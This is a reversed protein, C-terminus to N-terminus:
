YRTQYPNNPDIQEIKVNNKQKLTEYLAANTLNRYPGVYFLSLIGCTFASLIGWGIFSLDLIFTDGKENMMMEKSRRFAEKSDMTPNETLLYPIMRYEYAKIIGPVIFLLSWLGIFLYRLFQTKVINMYYSKFSFGLQNLDGSNKLADVFFHQCGVELPSWAFIKFAWGILLAVLVISLVIGMVILATEIDMQSHSFVDEEQLSRYSNFSSSGSSGGTVVGLILSVLVAKWYNVKLAEKAKRKLESRTWMM